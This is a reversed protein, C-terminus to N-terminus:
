QFVLCVHICHLCYEYIISGKKEGFFKFGCTYVKKAVGWCLGCSSCLKEWKKEKMATMIIQKQKLAGVWQTIQKQKLAYELWIVYMKLFFGFFKYGTPSCFFSLLVIFRKNVYCRVVYHNPDPNARYNSMSRLTFRWSCLHTCNWIYILILCRRLKIKNRQFFHWCCNCTGKVFSLLVSVIDNSGSDPPTILLFMTFSLCLSTTTKSIQLYMLIDKMIKKICINFIFWSLM